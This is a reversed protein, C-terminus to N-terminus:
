EFSVFLVTKHFVLTRNCIYKETQNLRNMSPVILHLSGDVGWLLQKLLIWCKVHDPLSKFCGCIHEYIHCNAHFRWHSVYSDNWSFRCITGSYFFARSKFSFVILPVLYFPIKSPSWLNHLRCIVSLVEFSLKFIPWTGKPHNLLIWTLFVPVVWFPFLRISLVLNSCACRLLIIPSYWLLTM